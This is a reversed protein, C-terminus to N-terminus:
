AVISQALHAAQRPRAVAFGGALFVTATADISLTVYPKADPMTDPDIEIVVLRHDFTTATLTLGTSAVAIADGLQDSLAVKCDAASLRYKFAIATTKAGQSAGAYVTLISNGTVAGFNIFASFGNTLATNVSYSDIGASGHDKSEFLQIPIHSESLRPM